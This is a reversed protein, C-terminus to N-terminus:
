LVCHSAPLGLGVKVSVAVPLSHRIGRHAHHVRARPSRMMSWWIGMAFKGPRPWIGITGPLGSHKYLDIQLQLRRLTSLIPVRAGHSIPEVFRQASETSKGLKNGNATKPRCPQGPKTQSFNM